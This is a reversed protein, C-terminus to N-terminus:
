RFSIIGAHAQMASALRKTFRAELMRAELM